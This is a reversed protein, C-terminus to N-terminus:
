FPMADASASARAHGFTAPLTSGCAPCPEPHTPDHGAGFTRFTGCKGCRMQRLKRSRVAASREAFALAASELEAVAAAADADDHAVARDYLCAPALDTGCAICTANVTGLARRSMYVISQGCSCSAKRMRCSSAPAQGCGCDCKPKSRTAM